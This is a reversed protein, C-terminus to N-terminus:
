ILRRASAKASRKEWRKEGKDKVGGSFPAFVFYYKREPFYKKIFANMTHSRRGRFDQERSFVKIM